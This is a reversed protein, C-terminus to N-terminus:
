SQEGQDNSKIDQARYFRSSPRGFVVTVTLVVACCRHLLRSQRSMSRATAQSGSTSSSFLTRNLIDFGCFENIHLSVNNRICLLSHHRYRYAVRGCTRPCIAPELRQCLSRSYVHNRSIKSFIEVYSWWDPVTDVFEVIVGVIGPNIVIEIM